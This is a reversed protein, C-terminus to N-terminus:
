LCGWMATELAECAFSDGRKMCETYARFAARCREPDRPPDRAAAAGALGRVAEHALASGAGLAAGQAVAAGLGGGPRAAQERPPPPPPAAARRDHRPSFLRKGGRPM